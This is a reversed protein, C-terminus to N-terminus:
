KEDKEGDKKENKKEDLCQELKEELLLIKEDQLKIIKEKLESNVIYEESPEELIDLKQRLMEGNGTLLWETNINPFKTLITVIKDGSIESNL